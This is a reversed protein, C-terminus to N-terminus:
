VFYCKFTLFNISKNLTNAFTNVTIPFMMSQTQAATKFSLSFSIMDFKILEVHVRIVMVSRMDIDPTIPTRTVSALSIVM